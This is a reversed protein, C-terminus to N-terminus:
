SAQCCRSGASMAPCPRQAGVARFGPQTAEHEDPRAPRMEM